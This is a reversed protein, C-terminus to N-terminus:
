GRDNEQVPEGDADVSGSRRKLVPKTLAVAVPMGSELRWRLTDKRIGYEEAWAILPQKKGEHEIIRNSRKNRAQEKHTAWRCNGPEYGKSNDIRDITTGPPRVGMDEVFNAFAM